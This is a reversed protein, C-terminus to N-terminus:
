WGIHNVRVVWPVVKVSVSFYYEGQEDPDTPDVPDPDAGGPGPHGFKAITDVCLKYVNNRVVAFEMKGMNTNDNNDNHRNWYYYYAYYGDTEYVYSTFGAAALVANKKANGNADSCASVAYKLDEPADQATAATKVNEWTGYLTNNFVYIPAKNANEIVEGSLKGKFVIGTSLGNVQTEEGPITNEKAYRWLKFGDLGDEGTWNDETVLELSEFTWTNLGGALPSEFNEKDGIQYGDAKAEFDTDVVYNIKTEVGGITWNNDKGDTSVRRILYFGKSHNILAAHTLTIKVNNGLDYSGNNKYDFRAMAREVYVDGLPTPDNENTSFKAFEVTQAYANTMWFHNAQTMATIDANSVANLDQRSDCNAYVYIDYPTDTNLVSSNFRAIYKKPFNTKDAGTNDEVDPTVATASVYTLGNRLVIDVKSIKNEYDYGVEIDPNANSSGYDDGDETATSSKTEIAQITFSVYVDSAGTSENQDVPSEKQCGTMAILFAAM